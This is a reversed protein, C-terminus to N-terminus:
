IQTFRLGSASTPKSPPLDPKGDADDAVPIQGNLPYIQLCRCLEFDIVNFKMKLRERSNM